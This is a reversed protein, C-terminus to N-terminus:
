LRARSRVGGHTLAIIAAAILTGVIIEVLLSSPILAGALLLSGVGILMTLWLPLAQRGPLVARGLLGVILGIALLAIIGM